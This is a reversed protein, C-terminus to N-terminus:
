WLLWWKGNNLRGNSIHFYEETFSNQISNFLLFLFAFAHPFAIVIVPGSDDVIEIDHFFFTMNNIMFFIKCFCLCSPGNRFWAYQVFVYLYSNVLKAFHLIAVYGYAIDMWVTCTVLMEDYACYTCLRSKRVVLADSIM